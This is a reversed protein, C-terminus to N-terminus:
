AVARAGAGKLRCEAILRRLFVEVALWLALLSPQRRDRRGGGAPDSARPAQAAPAGGAGRGAEGTQFARLVPVNRVPAALLPQDVEAGAFEDCQFQAHAAVQGRAWAAMEGIQLPQDLGKAGPQIEASRWEGRTAAPRARHM